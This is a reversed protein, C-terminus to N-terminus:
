VYGSSLTDPARLTISVVVWVMNRPDNHVQKATCVIASIHSTFLSGLVVGVVTRVSVETKWGSVVLEVSSLSYVYRKCALLRATM